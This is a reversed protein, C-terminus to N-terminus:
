FLWIASTRSTIAYLQGTEYGKLLMGTCGDVGESWGVQTLHGEVALIDLRDKGTANSVDIAMGNNVLQRLAKQTYKRM